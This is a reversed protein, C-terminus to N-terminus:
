KSAAPREKAERDRRDIESKPVSLVQRALKEFRAFESEEQGFGEVKPSGAPNVTRNTDDPAM